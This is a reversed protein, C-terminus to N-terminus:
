VFAGHHHVDIHCPYCLTMGNSVDYQTDKHKAWALVHHANLRGGRDGCLFCTYDDRDFVDQRWDRYKKMSCGDRAREAAYGGNWRPHNPGSIEPRKQGEKVGFVGKKAYYTARCSHSCFKPIGQTRYRRNGSKTVMSFPGGCEPCQLHTVIHEYEEQTM